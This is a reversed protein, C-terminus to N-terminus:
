EELGCLVHVLALVLAHQEEAAIRDADAQVGVAGEVEGLGVVQRAVDLGEDEGEAALVAVEIGLLSRGLLGERGPLASKKRPRLEM